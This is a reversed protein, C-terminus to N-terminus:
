WKLRRNSINITGSKLELYGSLETYPLFESRLLKINLDICTVAEYIKSINM